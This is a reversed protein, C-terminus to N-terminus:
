YESAQDAALTAVIRFAEALGARLTGRTTMARLDVDLKVLTQAAEPSVGTVISHAGLLRAAEVTKTLHLAVRSDIVPVGTVDIIAVRADERILAALLWEMIQWARQTDIIGVLPMLVIHKWIPLTPTALDILARSQREILLERTEVYTSFTVLALQDVAANLTRLLTALDEPQTSLERRMLDEVLPKLSMVFKATATPSFGEKARSASITAVQQELKAFTKSKLETGGEAFFEALRRLFEGLEVRVLNVNPRNPLKADGASMVAVVWRDLVDERHVSLQAAIRQM